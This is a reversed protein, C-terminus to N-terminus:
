LQREWGVKPDNGLSRELERVADKVRDNSYRSDGYKVLVYVRCGSDKHSRWTQEITTDDELVNLAHLYHFEGTLKATEDGDRPIDITVSLRPENSM